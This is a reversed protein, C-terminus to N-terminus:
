ALTQKVSACAVIGREVAALRRTTSGLSAPPIPAVADEDEQLFAGTVADSADVGEFTGCGASGLIRSPDCGTEWFWSIYVIRKNGAVYDQYRAAEPVSTGTISLLVEGTPVETTLLDGRVTRDFQLRLVNNGISYANVENGNWSITAEIEAHEEEWSWSRLRSELDELAEDIDSESLDTFVTLWWRLATLLAESLGEQSLDFVGDLFALLGGWHTEGLFDGAWENLADLLDDKEGEGGDTNPELWWLTIRLRDTGEPIHGSDVISGLDIVETAGDALEVSTTARAWNSGMGGEEYLRLRLRGLGWGKSSVTTPTGGHGDAMNLLNCLFRGPINAYTPHKALYWHKFLLACGAVTASAASTGSFNDYEQGLTPIGCGHGPAVLLPYPRGDGTPGVNSDGDLEDSMQAAAASKGEVFLNGVVLSVPSAGPASIESTIACGTRLGHDNGASKVHLVGHDIFARVVAVSNADLGRAEDNTPCEQEPDDTNLTEAQLLVDCLYGDQDFYREITDAISHGSFFAFARRALGSRAERAETAEMLEMAEPPEPGLNVDGLNGDQGDTVNGIAIGALNETHDPFDPNDATEEDGGEDTDAENRRVRNGAVTSQFAPHGDELTAGQEVIGLTLHAADREDRGVDVVDDARGWSAAALAGEAGSGAGTYGAELYDWANVVALRADLYDDKPGTCDGDDEAQDTGAEYRVGGQILYHLDPRGDQRGRRVIRERKVERVDPHASVLALTKADVVCRVANLGRFLRCHVEGGHAELWRVFLEGTLLRSEARKTLLENRLEGAHDACGHRTNAHGTVAVPPLKRTKEDRLWVVVEYRATGAADAAQEAESVLPRQAEEARPVVTRSAGEGAVEPGGEPRPVAPHLVVREVCEHGGSACARTIDYTVARGWPYEGGDGALMPMDFDHNYLYPSGKERAGLSKGGEFSEVREYQVPLDRQLQALLRMRKQLTWLLDPGAPDEVPKSPARVRKRPKAEQQACPCAGGCGAGLAGVACPCGQGAQDCSKCCSGGTSRPRGSCAADKATAPPCSSVRAEGQQASGCGRRGATASPCGAGKRDTQAGCAGAKPCGLSGSTAQGDTKGSGEDFM